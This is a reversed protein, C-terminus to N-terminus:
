ASKKDGYLVSAPDKSATGGVRGSPSDEAMLKGIDALLSIFHINNGYGERDLVKRIADGRPTGVPRLKELAARALRQTEPLKDGGYDPDATTEELFRTTDAKRADAMQVVFAQAEENTMDRARAYAEARSLDSDDVHGGDPVTLTYKAPAKAQQKGAADKGGATQQQAAADAAAKDAAAKDAAAKDATAKDAAVKDATAKQDATQEGTKGQDTTKGDDGTKGADAADDKGM